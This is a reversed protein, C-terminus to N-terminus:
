NLSSVKNLFYYPNKRSQLLTLSVQQVRKLLKGQAVSSTSILQDQITYLV